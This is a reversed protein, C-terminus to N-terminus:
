GSAIQEDRQTFLQDPSQFQMLEISRGLPNKGFSWACVELYEATVRDGSPLVLVAEDDDAQPCRPTTSM